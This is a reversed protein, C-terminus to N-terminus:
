KDLWKTITFELVEKMIPKTLFDDMGAEFCKKREDSVIGATLAIIPTRNSGTELTRIKTTAEYGNLVPMQIDMLILDPEHKQHAIVGENGDVAEIIEVLPLLKKIMTKILLMNIKNDEVLLVKWKKDAYKENFKFGDFLSKTVDRAGIVTKSAESLHLDFYFVSGVGFVSKLKLKSGLLNLIKNSINLGLGTGGFQRTTSNDAQSFAEFIKNLNENKIGIGTDSVIFRVRIKGAVLTRKLKVSLSVEGAHTFKIANSLLNILIQKIRITDALVSNPVKKDIFTSIKLNKKLAEYRISELVKECNARIDFYDDVIKYNGSEIKSFELIDNVIVMLMQSSYRITKLYDQQEETLSTQKLLETFGIIGNLPTRIEHSMNALFISKSKNSAEALEKEKVANDQSVKMTIDMFVGEIYLIEGNKYIAAGYEEIWVIKGSKNKIRYKINFNKNEKLSKRLSKVVYESDEPHLLDNYFIKNEIFDEKSYGTLKEIKDNIFIKSWKDDNKSLYVVGPINNALLRFREESELIIQENINREIVAGFNDVLTQLISIEDESWIRRTKCDSFGIFGHLKEKIIVAVFLFSKVSRETLMKKLPNAASLKETLDAQLKQKTLYPLLNKLKELPITEYESGDDLHQNLNQCEWDFRRYLIQDTENMEYYYIRDVNIVKGISAIVNDFIDRTNKGKLIKDTNQTIASLIESKYALLKETKKRKQTEILTTTIKTVSRVFNLDLNDWKKLTKTNEFCLIGHKINNVIISMDLMSKINYAEKYAKFEDYFSAKTIDDESCIGDQM